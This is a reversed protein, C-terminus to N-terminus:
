EAHKIRRKKKRYKKKKQLQDTLFGLKKQNM